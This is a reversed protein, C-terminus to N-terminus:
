KIMGKKKALWTPIAVIEKDQSQIQSRPIWVHGFDTNFLKADSSEKIIGYYYVYTVEENSFESIGCKM